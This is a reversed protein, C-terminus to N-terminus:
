PFIYSITQIQPTGNSTSASTAWGTLGINSLSIVGGPTLLITGAQNVGAM